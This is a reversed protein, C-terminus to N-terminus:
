NEEKSADAPAKINLAAQIAKVVNPSLDPLNHVNKNKPFGQESAVKYLDDIVIGNEDMIKRAIANYKKADGKIRGPEGDPVPTTSAWILTAGTAQLRTVLKRLNKEYDEPTTTLFGNVKDLGGSGRTKQPRYAIDWLGWNFHIVDWNGDDLWQDLKEIGNWTHRANDRPKVVLAKGKLKAQVAKSYGGCISDGILLVRPLPTAQASAARADCQQIVFDVLAQHQFFGTWMNHGQGKAIDLQMKGGLKNYRRALLASNAENPVVKDVDGHIHFIPVGAKALPALRDIPNHQSLKAKLQDATMEYAGAARGLGPYSTLNCVPYIGAIGGVSDPHEAAWNYLMLGGRSRALLVPKDHFKRNGVLQEYLSQYIAQGQPSGYSEGVNVGAIAIGAEDFQDFMWKEAEGPLGRLTPAYWVWRMPRDTPAKTPLIVFADHGAVFFNERVAQAESTLGALAVFMIALRIPHMKIM